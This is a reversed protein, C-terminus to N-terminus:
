NAGVATLYTNLAAYLDAVNQLTLGAGFGGVALRRVSYSGGGQLLTIPQVAEPAVSTNSVTNLVAGNRVIDMLSSSSRSVGTLGLATAVVAGQGTASSNVRADIRTGTVTYPKLLITVGTLTGVDNSADQANTNAYSFISADNQKFKALSAPVAGTNLYAGVGDGTYGRDATFVPSGSASINYANAVLNQRAAQADAAALV